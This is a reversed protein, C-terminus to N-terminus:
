STHAAGIRDYVRWTEAEHEVATIEGATLREDAHILREVNTQLEVYDATPEADRPEVTRVATLTRVQRRASGARLFLVAGVTLSIGTAAIMALATAGAAMLPAQILLWLGLGWVPFARWLRLSIREDRSLGPPYVVLRYRAVGHGNSADLGGWTREGELLRRLLPTPVTTKPM